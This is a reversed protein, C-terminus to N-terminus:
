EFLCHFSNLIHNNNIYNILRLCKWWLMNRIDPLVVLFSVTYRHVNYVYKLCIHIKIAITENLNVESLCYDIPFHLNSRSNNTVIVPRYLERLFFHHRVLHQWFTCSSKVPIKEISWFRLPFHVVFFFSNVDSFIELLLNLKRTSILFSFFLFLICQVLM